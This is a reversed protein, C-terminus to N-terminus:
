PEATLRERRGLRVPHDAMALMETDGDSDGYAWMRVSVGDDALWERLREVKVPGRVNNGFLRGTVRGRRDVELRTALVDTCGLLRGVASVLLDLGASVLVVEHGQAQHWRLRAVRDPRLGHEVIARAFDEAIPLLEDLWWGNLTRILVAEKARQRTELGAAARLLEPSSAALARAVVARGRVRMLFPVLTDHYTLTGDFDFAAVTRAAAVTM